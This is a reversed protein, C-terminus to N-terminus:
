IDSYENQFSSDIDDIMLLSSGSFPFDINRGPPDFFM